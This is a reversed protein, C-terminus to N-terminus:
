SNWSCTPYNQASTCLNDTGTRREAIHASCPEASVPSSGDRPLSRDEVRVRYFSQLRDNSDGVRDLDDYPVGAGAGPRSSQDFVVRPFKPSHCYAVRRHAALRYNPRDGRAAAGSLDPLGTLNRLLVGARLVEFQISSSRDRSPAGWWRWCRRRSGGRRPISMRGM